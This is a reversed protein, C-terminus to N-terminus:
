QKVIRAHVSGAAHKVLCSYVGVPLASLDIDGNAIREQMVVEGINNIISVTANRWASLGSARLNVSGNTPNPFAFMEDVRPGADNVSAVVAGKENNFRTILPAYGFLTGNQWKVVQDMSLVKGDDQLTACHFNIRLGYGQDDIPQVGPNFETDILGFEDLRTLYKGSMYGDAGYAQALVILGGNPEILLEDPATYYLPSTDSLDMYGSSGFGTDLSGNELLKFLYSPWAWTNPQLYISNDHAIAIDLIWNDLFYTSLDLTYNFSADIIGNANFRWICAGGLGYSALVIRGLNDIEMLPYSFPAAPTYAVGNTGFSNDTTFDENLRIVQGCGAGNNNGGKGICIRGQEDVLMKAFGAGGPAEVPTWSEVVAGSLDISGIQYGDTGSALVFIKTEDASLAADCFGINPFELIGGAGFASAFSGDNNLKMIYSSTTGNVASLIPFIKGGTELIDFTIVDPIQPLFGLQGDGSFTLDLTGDQAIATSLVILIAGLFSTGRLRISPQATIM